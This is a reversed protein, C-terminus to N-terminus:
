AAGGGTKRERRARLRWGLSRVWRVAFVPRDNQEGFFLVLGLALIVLNPMWMGIVPPYRGAEGFVEGAALILYYLLFCGLALSVGFSKRSVRSVVGLPMALFGLVVCAFPLSAKKQLQIKALWYLDDRKPWTNIFDILETITMEEEDKPGSTRVPSIMSKLDLLLDYTAFRGSHVLRDRDDVQNFVGDSLRLLWLNKDPESFLKGKGSLIITTVGPTKRDEIYVDGLTLKKSDVKGAYLVVGSFQDNFTRERIGIEINRRAVDLLLAKTAMRGWPLGTTGIFATVSAALICFLMVPPLFFFLSGGGARVATVEGDASLRLFTLLVALLVAMPIVFTLFYPMSYLLLRVVPRLGVRYNVVYETLDLMRMMLFVALFVLITLAFPWLLEFFITKHLIRVRHM